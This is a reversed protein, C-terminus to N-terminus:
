RPFGVNKKGQNYNKIFILAILSIVASAMLYYLPIGNQPFKSMLYTIVMPATGGFIGMSLNNSLAISTYRTKASFCETLFSPIPGLFSGTLIALSLHVLFFSRVNKAELLSIFCFCLVTACCSVYRLIKKRGLKDSLRGSIIAAVGILLVGPTNLLSSVFPSLGKFNQQAYNSFFVTLTYMGVALYCQAFFTFVLPKLDVTVADKIPLKPPQTTKQLDIFSQSEKLNSRLYIAWIIGIFSIFFPIRWGWQLMQEESLISHLLASVFSGFAMGLVLSLAAISGYFGRQKPNAEEVLYTMTGAYEGGMALGQALRILILIVSATMGISEYTPLIGIAFTPVSMLAISSFLANKRGFKDGIHGFLIGGLPRIMIGLAFVGFAKFLSLLPSSAPFFLMGIVPAFYGFVIFEYWEIINGLTCAIFSKTQKM